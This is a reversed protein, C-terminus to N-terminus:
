GPGGERDDYAVLLDRLREADGLALGSLEVKADVTGATHISVTALGFRRMLPGQLVDTHQVRSLPVHVVRRWLVGKRIEVARETVRYSTADYVWRPAKLTLFVLVGVLAAWGLAPVFRLAAIEIQFAGVIPGAVLGGAVLATGISWGIREMTIFRPDLRRLEM